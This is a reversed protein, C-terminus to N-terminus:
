ILAELWYKQQWILWFVLGLLILSIVLRFFRSLFKWVFILILSAILWAWSSTKLFNEFGELSNDTLNKLWAPAYASYFSELGTQKLLQATNLRLWLFLASNLFLLLAQQPYLFILRKLIKM